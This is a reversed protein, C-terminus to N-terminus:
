SRRGRDATVHQRLCRCPGHTGDDRVGRLNLLCEVTLLHEENQSRFGSERIGTQGRGGSVWEEGSVVLSRGGATQRRRGLVKWLSIVQTKLLMGAM